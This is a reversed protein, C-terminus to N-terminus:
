PLDGARHAAPRRQPLGAYAEEPDRTERETAAGYRLALPSAPYILEDPDFRGGVMVVVCPGEGAGVLVHETWAPLHVYDWPGLRREEEEVLLLCEGSLVLIGEQHVEGHYYCNPKGPELVRLNVGLEPFDSEGEFVVARDFVNEKHSWRAERANVVFWGDGDPVLGHATRVLPAESVV